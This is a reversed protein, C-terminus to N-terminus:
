SQDIEIVEVKVTKGLTLAMLAAKAEEGYPQGSKKGHRIEPADIGYLRVRLKTGEPTILTLTDGDAVKKVVGEVTRIAPHAPYTLCLLVAFAVLLIITSRCREFM